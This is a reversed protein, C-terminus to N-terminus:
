VARTAGDVDVLRANEVVHGVSVLILIDVHAAAADNLLSVALFLFVICCSLFVVHRKAACIDFNYIYM